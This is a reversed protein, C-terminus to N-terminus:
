IHSPFCFPPFYLRESPSVTQRPWKGASPFRCASHSSIAEVARRRRLSLWSSSIVTQAHRILFTIHYLFIIFNEDANKLLHHPYPPSVGTVCLLCFFLPITACERALAAARSHALSLTKPQEDYRSFNEQAVWFCFDGRWLRARPLYM